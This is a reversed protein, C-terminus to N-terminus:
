RALDAPVPLDLAALFRGAKVEVFIEEDDLEDVDEDEHVDIEAPDIDEALYAILQREKAERDAKGVGGHVQDM